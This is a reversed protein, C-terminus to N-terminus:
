DLKKIEQYRVIYRGRSVFGIVEGQRIRAYDEPSVFYDQVRGTEFDWVSITGVRGFFLANTMKGVVEGSSSRRLGLAQETPLYVYFFTAASLCLTFVAFTAILIAYRRYLSLLGGPTRATM